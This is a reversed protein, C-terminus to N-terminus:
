IQGFTRKDFKISNDVGIIDIDANSGFSGLGLRLAGDQIELKCTDFCVWSLFALTDELATLVHL